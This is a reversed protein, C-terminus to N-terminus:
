VSPAGGSVLMLQSVLQSFRTPNPLSSGEALLAIGFLLEGCDKLEASRGAEHLEKLKSALPHDLNLELVRKREPAQDGSQRLMRQMHAGISHEDDVLLSPSHKLRGSFRVKSVHPALDSEIREFVARYERERRELEFREAEGVFDAEGRGLQVIRKGQYERLADLLWEDIPEVLFLVEWGRDALAELAPSRRAADLDPGTLVYIASQEKPCAALYEDLSVPRERKSSPFLALAAVSQSHERDVVVGEKLVTGFASWFREYDARRGDRMAALAELVKKTCRKHIQELARNHQLIERSVNLPLDQSDVVGRIFRLWSPLLKECDAMVFVRRVYLAVHAKDRAPDFLEQPRESPVYLLATYESTGEVRFHVTELPDSWGHTLHRFFQAYESAQIEDKPRAWLPKRSNLLVCELGGLGPERKLRGDQQFHAAPMRIPWEVFDSYKAILGRLVEPDAFDQAQSDDGDLPKLELTIRTGRPLADCDEVSFEGDGKSSWRTGGPEGARRTEVVIQSAVMFSAYFGVGFQGILDPAQGGAQRLSELFKRTGSRAITGLNEVVEARSMGIGSDSISLRRRERDVELQIALEEGDSIWNPHTLGEFRLKDLADSANSVLERLFIEQHSYLSHIMLGLLEKVEAQFTHTEPRTM